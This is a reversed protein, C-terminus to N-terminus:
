SKRYPVGNIFDVNSAAVVPSGVPAARLSGAM